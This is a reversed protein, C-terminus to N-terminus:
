SPPPCTIGGLSLMSCVTARSVLWRGDIRVAVGTRLGFQPQGALLLTYQVEAHDADLMRIGSVTGSYQALQEPTHQAQGEHISELLSDADEVLARTEADTRTRLWAVFLEQIAREDDTVPVFGPGAPVTTITPLPPTTTPATVVPAATTAPTLPEVRLTNLVQIGLNLRDSLGFPESLSLIENSLATLQARLDEVNPPNAAIQPILANQQVTLDDLRAQVDASPTHTSMVEALFVRGADTFAYHRTSNYCGSQASVSTNAGFESGRPSVNLPPGGAYSVQATGSPFEWLRVWSGEIGPAVTCPSPSNSLPARTGIVVRSEGPGSVDGPYLNWGPPIAMTIGPDAHVETWGDPIGTSPDSGVAVRADDGGGSTAVFTGGVLALVVVAVLAGLGRHRRRRDRAVRMAGDVDPGRSPAEATDHLLTRVDPSM